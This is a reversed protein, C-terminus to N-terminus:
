IQNTVNVIIHNLIVPTNFFIMVIQMKSCNDRSVDVVTNKVSSIYHLTYVSLFFLNFVVEFVAKPYVFISQDSNDQLRLVFGGM